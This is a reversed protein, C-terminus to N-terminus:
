QFTATMQGNAMEISVKLAGLEPPDLRIQMSGNGGAAMQTRVGTVIKDHNADAFQAEPPAPPLPQTPKAGPASQATSDTSQLAPVGVIPDLDLTSKARPSATAGDTSFDTTDTPVAA